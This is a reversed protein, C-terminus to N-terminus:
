YKLHKKLALLQFRCKQGHLQLNKYSTKLKILNINLFCVCHALSQPGWLRAHLYVIGLVHLFSNKRLEILGYKLM